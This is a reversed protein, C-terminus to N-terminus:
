EFTAKGKNVGYNANANRAFLRSYQMQRYVRSELPTVLRPAGTLSPKLYGWAMAAAGLVVPRATLLRQFCKALFLIKSGGYKFYAEGHLIQTRFWGSASGEPKLHHFQIEPFHRTNWNMTQAKIEDVTDWGSMRIFGGIEEFCRRRVVKTAGAAHYLPMSVPVWDNKGEELYVGSAIGLNPDKDFHAFLAEFYDPPLVLDCDLKVIYDYDVDGLAEYGAYFASIVAAGARRLGDHERRVVTLWPVLNQYRSLIEPSSDASCDDVIIWRTPSITQQLVSELTRVLFREEDRVPSIIVYRSSM